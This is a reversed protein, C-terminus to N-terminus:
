ETYAATELGRSRVIINDASIDFEVLQYGLFVLSFPAPLNVKDHLTRIVALKIFERTNHTPWM